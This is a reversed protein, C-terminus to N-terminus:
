YMYHITNVIYNIVFNVCNFSVTVNKELVALDPIYVISLKWLIYKFTLVSGFM